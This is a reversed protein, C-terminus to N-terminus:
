GSEGLNVGPSALDNLQSEVASQADLLSGSHQLNRRFCNHPVPLQGLQPQQAFHASALLNIGSLCDRTSSSTWCAKSSSSFCRPSNRSRCQAPSPSRRRSTSDRSTKPLLASFKM